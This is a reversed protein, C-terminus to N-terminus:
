DARLEELLALAGTVDIATREIRIGSTIRALEYDGAVDELVSDVRLNIKSHDPRASLTPAVVRADGKVYHASGDDVVILTLRGNATVNRVSRSRAHLALRINRADRAVLELSSVMAPHAWGHEDITCIVIAREAQEIARDAGLRSLLADNLQEGVFRSM